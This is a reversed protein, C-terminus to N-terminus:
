SGDRSETSSYVNEHQGSCDSHRLAESPGDEEVHKDEDLPNHELDASQTVIPLDVSYSEEMSTSALFASQQDKQQQQHYRLIEELPEKVKHKHEYHMKM